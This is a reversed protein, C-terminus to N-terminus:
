VAENIPRRLRPTVIRGTHLFQQAMALHNDLVPAIEGAVTAMERSGNSKEGDFLGITQEQAAVEDHMYTEDPEAVTTQDPPASEPYRLGFQRAATAIEENANTDDRIITQAYLRVYPNSTKQLQAQAQAIDQFGGNMAQTVFTQDVINPPATDIQQALGPLASACLLALMATM